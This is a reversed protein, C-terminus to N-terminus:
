RNITGMQYSIGHVPQGGGVSIQVAGKMPIPYGSRDIVQLEKEPLLFSGNKTEGEKLHIRQFGKLSRIPVRFSAKGSSVYLQVVEDGDVGGVNKVDASVQYGDAM